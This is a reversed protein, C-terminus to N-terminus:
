PGSEWERILWASVKAFDIRPGTYHDFPRLRRLIRAARETEVCQLGINKLLGVMNLADTFSKAETLAAALARLLREDRALPNDYRAPEGILRVGLRHLLADLNRDVGSRIDIRQLGAIELPQRESSVNEVLLPIVLKGLEVARVLERQCWRSAASRPSLMYLFSEQRIIAELIEAPFVAGGELGAEDWWVDLGQETLRSALTGAMGRDPDQSSHSIFVSGIM